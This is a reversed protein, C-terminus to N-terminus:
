QIRRDSFEQIAEESAPAALKYRHSYAGFRAFDLDKTRAQELLKLIRKVWPPQATRAM